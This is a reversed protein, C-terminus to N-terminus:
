LPKLLLVQLVTSGSGSYIRPLFSKGVDVRLMTKWPARLNLGVGIGTLRQWDGPAATAAFPKRGFSQDFFLDFRYQEFLNFSYSARFLAIEGFRVGASPVGHMKAESFLGFQYMSFRDLRKGGFYTGDVHLKHFTKFFFDKSVSLNYKYYNREEPNFSTSADGWREWAGRRNYSGSALLSYGRRRYEYAAGFANTLTDVPPTFDPDTEDDAFFLDYRFQYSGTLKQFSTFQYGVNVGTSFPTSRFREERVEGNEGFVQDNVPVAIGFFDVSVDLPTGLAHTQQVNGLALVGGFLLAFQMNRDLFDFDLYNIGFIPLPFDFSPDVTVGMALAKASRTLETSAVREGGQKVFYRLGADTDRFMVHESHRAGARAEVFDESNVAFDSFTVEREVLLNRGAILFLQKNALRTPLFVPRGDVFAVPSLSQTEDNSVVPATLATQVAQAKIRVFKQDDIWVKGRYLTRAETVPEFRVVYCRYAGVTEVGELAYRYQRDLKLDLPLALVKEPQLLPFSPRDAGWRAGNFTFSLEEWESGERDYYFNNETVVDFGPEGPAIRFHIAVRARARYNQLLGDQAAQAQQHRFIIEDVTPLREAKVDTRSAYFDSGYNFDLLVPVDGLQIRLRSVGATADREFNEVPAASGTARPPATAPVALEVDVAGPEGWLALYTSFNELNYLLRYSLTGASRLKLEAAKEDLSVVENAFVDKLAAAAAVPPVVARYTTLRVDSAVHRIQSILFSTGTKKADGDLPVGTVIVSATPDEMRVLATLEPDIAELAVGDVYAAVDEDYFAAQWAKDPPSLTAQVLLADPDTARIQIAALKLYFAYEKVSPGSAGGVRAGIQYAAVKGRLRSALEQIEQRFPETDRVSAPLETLTVLVAVGNKKYLDVRADLRDQELETRRVALRAWWPIGAPAGPLSRLLASEEGISEDFGIGRLPSEAAAAASAFLGLALLTRVIM